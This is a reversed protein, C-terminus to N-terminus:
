RLNDEAPTQSNPLFCDVGKHILVMAAGGACSLATVALIMSAVLPIPSHNVVDAFKIEKRYFELGHIAVFEFGPAGNMIPQQYEIRLGLLCILFCASAGGAFHRLM